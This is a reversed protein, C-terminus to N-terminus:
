SVSRYLQKNECIEYVNKHFGTLIQCTAEVSCEREFFINVVSMTSLSLVM